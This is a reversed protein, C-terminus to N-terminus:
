KPMERFVKTRKCYDIMQQITTFGKSKCFEKAEQSVHFDDHSRCLNVMVKNIKRRLLAPKTCGDHACPTELVVGDAKWGCGCKVAGISLQSKCTPCRM